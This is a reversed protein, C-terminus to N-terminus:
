PGTELHCTTMTLHNCCLRNRYRLFLVKISNKGSSLSLVDIAYIDYLIQGNAGVQPGRGTFVTSLVIVIGMFRIDGDSEM